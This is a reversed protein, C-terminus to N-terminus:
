GTLRQSMSQQHEKSVRGYVRLILQGGDKHGQWEAITQPDIGLELCRTIFMRRFARATYQPLGLRKCAAELAKKPNKVKFVADTPKIKKGRLKKLKELVPLLQPYIPISFEQGTKMRILTIVKSTENIDGWKLGACEAQGLGALGMFEVLAASDEGTDSFEQERISEVIKQFEERTPILRKNVARLKRYKMGELPSFPIAQDQLAHLFVGRTLTIVKNLTAPSLRKEYSAFFKTLDSAKLSAIKTEKPFFDKLEDLYQNKYRRSGSSFPMRERYEEVIMGLTKRSSLVDTRELSTKLVALLRKAEPLSTCPCHEGGLRQKIRKGRFSFLAYYSGSSENQYIGEAKRVLAAQPPSDQPTKM